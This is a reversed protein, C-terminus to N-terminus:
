VARKCLELDVQLAAFDLALVPDEPYAAKRAACMDVVGALLRVLDRSDLSLKLEGGYSLTESVAETPIVALVSCTGRPPQGDVVTVPPGCFHLEVGAVVLRELIKNAM